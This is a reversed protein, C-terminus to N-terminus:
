YVDKLISSVKEAVSYKGEFYMHENPLLHYNFYTSDLDFLMDLAYNGQREQITSKLFNRHDILRQSFYTGHFKEGSQYDIPTFYYLAEIDNELCLSDMKKLYKVKNNESTIDSMYLFMFSKKYHGLTDKVTSKDEVLYEKVRGIESGNICVPEEYFQEHTYSNIQKSYRPIVRRFLYPTIGSNLFISEKAILTVYEPRKGWEHTFARINIPVIVKGPVNGNDISYQLYNYYNEISASPRSVGTVNQGPTLSDVLEVITRKDMWDSEHHTNVSSGFMIIKNQKSLTDRLEFFIKERDKTIFYQVVLNIGLALLVFVAIELIYKKMSSNSISLNM